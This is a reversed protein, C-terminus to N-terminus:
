RIALLEPDIEGLDLVRGRVDVPLRFLERRERLGILTGRGAPLGTLEFSGSASAAVKVSVGRFRFSFDTPPEGAQFSGQLTTGGPQLVIRGLDNEGSTLTFDLVTRVHGEASVLLKVDGPPLPDLTVRGDPGTVSRTAAGDLPWAEVSAELALIFKAGPEAATADAAPFSLEVTGETVGGGPGPLRGAFHIELAASVGERMRFFVPKRPYRVVREQPFYRGEPDEIRVILDGEAYEWNAQGDPGTYRSVLEKGSSLLVRVEVGAVPREEDTRVAWVELSAPDLSSAHRSECGGLVCFLMAALSLSLRWCSIGALTVPIAQIM